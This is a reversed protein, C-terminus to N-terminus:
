NLIKEGVECTRMINQSSYLLLHYFQSADPDTNQESGTNRLDPDPDPNLEMGRFGFGFYRLLRYYLSIRIGKEITM